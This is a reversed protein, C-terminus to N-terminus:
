AAHGEEVGGQVDAEGVHLEVLLRGLEALDPRADVDRLVRVADLVPVAQPLAHELFGGAGVQGAVHLIAVVPRALVQTMDVLEALGPGPQQMARVEQLHQPLADRIRDDIEVLPQPRDTLAVAAAACRVPQEEFVTGRRLRIDHDPAVADLRDHSFYHADGARGFIGALDDVPHEHVVLVKGRLCRLQRVLCDIEASGLPM